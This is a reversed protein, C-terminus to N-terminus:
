YSTKGYNAVNGLLVDRIGFFGIDSRWVSDTQPEVITDAKFKAAAEARAEVLDSLGHWSVLRQANWTPIQTRAEKPLGTVPDKNQVTKIIHQSAHTDFYTLTMMGNPGAVVKVLRRHRNAFGGTTVGTGQVYTDNVLDIRVTKQSMDIVQAAM